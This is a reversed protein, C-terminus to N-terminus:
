CAIFAGVSCSIITVSDSHYGISVCSLVYGGSGINEVLSGISTIDSSTSM